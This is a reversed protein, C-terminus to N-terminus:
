KLRFNAKTEGKGPLTATVAVRVGVGVKFDGKAVMRNEGAPEFSATTKSSGSTITASAKAGASPTPKDNENLYLTLSDAKAVLELGIAGVEVYQGGHPPPADHKHGEGAFASTQALVALAAVSFLKTLQM